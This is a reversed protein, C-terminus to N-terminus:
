RGIRGRRAVIRDVLIRDGIRQNDTEFSIAEIGVAFGSSEFSAIERNNVGLQFTGNGRFVMTINYVEDETWSVGPVPEFDGGGFGDPVLVAISGDPSFRIRTAISGTTRNTPTIYWTSRMGKFGCILTVVFDDNGPDPIVDFRPSRVLAEFGFAAGRTEAAWGTRRGANTTRGLETQGRVASWGHQGNLELGSDFCEPEQGLCFDEAYYTTLDARAAGAVVLLAMTLTAGLRALKIM